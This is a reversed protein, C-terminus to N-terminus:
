LFSAAGGLVCMYSLSLSLVFFFVFDVRPPRSWGVQLMEWPSECAQRVLVECAFSLCVMCTVCVVHIVLPGGYLCVYLMCIFEFGDLCCSLHSFMARWSMDPQKGLASAIDLDM